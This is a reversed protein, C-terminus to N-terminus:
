KKQGRESFRELTSKKRVGREGLSKISNWRSKSSARNEIRDSKQGGGKLPCDKTKGGTKHREDDGRQKRQPKVTWSRGKKKGRQKKGNKQSSEKSRVREVEVGSGKL